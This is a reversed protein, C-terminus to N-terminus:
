FFDAIVLKGMKKLKEILLPIIKKRPLLGMQRFLIGNHGPNDAQGIKFKILDSANLLSALESVCSNMDYTEQNEDIINYIQNLVITGETALDIGPLFYKPPAAYSGSIKGAVIKRNTERAFIELTTSGCIIKRGTAQMFDDVLAKDQVKDQPPGTFINLVRGKRCGIRVVTADDENKGNGIERAKQDILNTIEDLNQNISLMKNIYGILGELQWGLRYLKGMGAQTIGDTVLIIAKHYDLHFNSEGLVENKIQFFNQNAAFCVNNEVFVPPPAEYTIINTIGNPLIRAISFAAFPVNMTRAKHLYSVIRTVAERLTFGEKLMTILQTTIMTAAVNAKIGSGIGDALILTSGEPTKHQLILDGCVRQKDKCCQAHVAEVHVYDGPNIKRSHM